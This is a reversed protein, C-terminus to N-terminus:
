AADCIPVALLTLGAAIAVQWWWQEHFRVVWVIIPLSILTGITGSAVPAYGLGFGTAVAVILREKTRMTEMRTM